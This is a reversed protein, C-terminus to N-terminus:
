AVLFGLQVLLNQAEERNLYLDFPHGEWDSGKVIVIGETEPDETVYVGHAFIETLNM